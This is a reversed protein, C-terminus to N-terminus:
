GYRDTLLAMLARITQAEGGEPRGPKSSPNWAFLDLHLWSKTREVFRELFLAAVIAGALPATGVNNMDAIRSDLMSRYPQWLPMRWCPDAEAAACRALQEALADDGTFAAPLDPGLAVRAAGTLTAFDVILAPAAEDALTLADALILRGEADTNGIEVTVGKRSKIVDGPRFSEGSISNEVAAIVVHLRVRLKAAMIMQALGLANAAGGMDKKMLLMGASTKIDLGGTDFSVGKGVLAIRPHTEEGWTFEILRPARSSARGVAHVLPFNEKLLDDGAISRFKAGFREAIARVAAEIEAPGCDNSPTNVLDRVLFVGEVTRSLEGGDIGDPVVLRIEKTDAKRYRTFRYLGLAFSLAALRADHPATAFRWRGSPLVTALKGPLFHNAGSSGPKDLGFLAGTLAGGEGPLLLHNGADAKFGAADAFAREPPTLRERVGPWTEADVFWVPKADETGQPLFIPHLDTM